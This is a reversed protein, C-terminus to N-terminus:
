FIAHNQSWADTRAEFIQCLTLLLLLLLLIIIIITFLSFKCDINAATGVTLLALFLWMDMTDGSCLVIRGETRYQGSM